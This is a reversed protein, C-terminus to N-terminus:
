CQPQQQLQFPRFRAPFDELAPSSETGLAPLNKVAWAVFPAQVLSQRKYASKKISEQQKRSRPRPCDREHWLM